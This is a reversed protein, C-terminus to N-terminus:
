SYCLEGFTFITQWLSEMGRVLKGIRSLEVLDTGVRHNLIRSKVAERGAM